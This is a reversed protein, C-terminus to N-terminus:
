SRALGDFGPGVIIDRGNGATITDNGVGGLAVNNGGGILITDDDGTGSVTTYVLTLFGGGVKLAKGTSDVLEASVGPFPVTASGPKTTTVGPLPTIMIGGTETQWWNDHFPLGLVKDSWVVAEPNLPEGVSMTYRLSSLDYKKPVEDGAKMLM